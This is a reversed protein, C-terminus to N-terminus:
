ALDLFVQEATWGREERLRRVESLLLPDDDMMEVLTDRQRRNFELRRLEHYRWAKLKAHDLDRVVHEGEM